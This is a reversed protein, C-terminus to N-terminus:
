LLYPNILHVLYVIFLTELHRGSLLIVCSGTDKRTTNKQEAGIPTLKRVLSVSSGLNSTQPTTVAGSLGILLHCFTAGLIIFFVAKFKPISSIDVGVM